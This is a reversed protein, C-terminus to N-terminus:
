APFLHLDETRWEAVVSVGADLRTLGEQGNPVAAVVVDHTSLRVRYSVVDGRYTVEEIVGPYRHGPTPGGGHRLAVREPRVMLRVAQGPKWSAGEGAASCALGGATEVQCVKGEVVRVTGGLFNSEGLFDAVFNTQPAEYLERPSGVQEVAGQNMVAVRDSMALAETQDHTVHIVTIGLTRHLSRLEAQMRDRLKRDLAGLPEDLLLVQPNFVVARALAVRQQEGGSLQAPYRGEFGALRVLDLADEVRRRIESRAYGRMQLAFGVNEAVTLHPFLAYHQFVVGLNRRAPPLAAVSRGGIRIDGATPEILGAVMMLTTTKGSGSPGLLTVFEGPAIDLTIERVAWVAGYRRALRVLQVRGDTPGADPLRELGDPGVAARVSVPGPPGAFTM